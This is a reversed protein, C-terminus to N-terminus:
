RVTVGLLHLLRDAEQVEKDATGGRRRVLGARVLRIRAEEYLLGQRKADVLGAELMREAEDLRGLELLAEATIRRVAAAAVAIEDGASAEAEELVALAAEPEGFRVHASALQVLAELLLFSNSGEAAEAAVKRLAEVAGPEGRRAMLRGLQTEAFIAATHHAARLARRADRLIEEAAEWEGRSILVEGLNAEAFAVQTSDGAQRFSDRARRYWEVSEDWKGDSYAQVGLNMEVIAARRTLGLQQWIPLAKLENVAKQPEGLMQYAGDLASYARALAELEGSAEALEVARQAIAIAQREHGQWKHVDARLALLSAIARTADVSDLDRVCKLGATTERLALSYSGVRLRAIARQEFVRARGVPDEPLLRSARRYAEFARDFLGGAEWVSGLAQWTGARDADNVARVHRGAALAREYFRAAEVNAYIRRARDGARRCYEWAKDHVQAEYFHLALTGVEEETSSGAHAEISEAVRRHLLHRRKYPLGEYAAERILTNRFRLRAPGDLEVLEHLREWVGEDIEADDGVASELLGPDFSKGLVAAFRLVTRDGPSLRDIEAAVLAEISDPLGELSGTSRVTELLEFLFLPNGASRRALEEVIHPPFPEDESVAHIAAIAAELHLPLLCLSIAHLHDPGEADFLSGGGDHTVFLVQKRDAGVIALRRLLDRSSEDMYQADEVALMTTTGALTTYLFQVAVEALRDPVFREDLSQTEPTPPLDLGLLIGLLPVWPVLSSDALAVAEHLRATVEPTDWGPEIGLLRRFPARLPFYPTAAEYQECRSHFVYVDPEHELLAKLLRTKGVGAAGSLDVIWGTSRRADDVVRRLAELERERGCLPMAVTDTSRTGVVPGVISARVPESKGKAAFPEIPLTDFTTRSRELVIETALIQGADARSMVRAATNIADGFVRYSRRYSPGFDGTFVKGTNVGVRIPVAGPTEMIDRLARLIREEDQGTSSPAGATLLAKISGKGVDSEYFPVEYALAAEQITRLREDLAVALRELGIQELLLDTDMLDIFAATITRHEPESRELLVHQRAAVPICTAIDITSVDGVDPARQRDVDPPRSLLLSTEKPLGICDPDLRAALVPSLAIEGADAIGEMTVTETVAPGAILLERHVSGAMVFQFTGTTIGVSMRLTISASGTKLRGVRDLTQQMEWAARCSREEHRPGDFLLLLADGGWKLLGAGYDYAEDLLAIFVGNLTDRMLEAGIKGRRSLRESLATFGSIDVFVMSGEVERYLADPTQRLWDVVLRPVYPTLVENARVRSAAAEDTVATSM